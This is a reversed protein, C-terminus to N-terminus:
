TPVSVAQSMVNNNADIYPLSLRLELFFSVSVMAIPEVEQGGLNAIATMLGLQILATLLCIAIMSNILASM